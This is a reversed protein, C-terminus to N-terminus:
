FQWIDCDKLIKIKAFSTSPRARQSLVTIFGNLNSSPLDDGMFETAISIIRIPENKTQKSFFSFECFFFLFLIFVFM